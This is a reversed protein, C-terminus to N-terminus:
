GAKGKRGPPLKGSLRAERIWAHVRTVPVSSHDAMAKAPSNSQMAFVRYYFAVTQRFEDPDDYDARNLPELDAPGLGDIIAADYNELPVLPIERLLEATISEGVFCLGTIRAPGKDTIERRFYVRADRVGDVRIWQESEGLEPGRGLHDWFPDEETIAPFRLTTGSASPTETMDGLNCPKAPKSM